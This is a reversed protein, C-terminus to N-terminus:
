TLALIMWLLRTVQLTPKVMEPLPVQIRMWLQLAMALAVMLLRQLWHLRSESVLKRVTQPGPAPLGGPRQLLDIM